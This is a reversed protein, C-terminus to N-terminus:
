GQRARRACAQDRGALLYRGGRREVMPTVDAVYDRVWAPDTVDLQAIAYQKV